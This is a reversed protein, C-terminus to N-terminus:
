HVTQGCYPDDASSELQAGNPGPDSFLHSLSVVGKKTQRRWQQYCRHLGPVKPPMVLPDSSQSFPSCRPHFSHTGNGRGDPNNPKRQVEKTSIFPKPRWTVRHTSGNTKRNVQPEHHPFPLAGPQAQHIAQNLSQAPSERGQRYVVLLGFSELAGQLEPYPHGGSGRGM